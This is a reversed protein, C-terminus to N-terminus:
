TVTSIQLWITIGNATISVLFFYGVWVVGPILTLSALQDADSDEAERQRRLIQLEVIPKLSAVTLFTAIFILLFAQMEPSVLFTFYFGVLLPIVVLFGWFNRVSLFIVALFTALITIGLLVRGSSSLYQIGLGLLAPSTYGAATTFVMGLGRPNGRSITVGSTDSHLKIGSIRRGFLIGVFAHGGEHVVTIANRSVAWIPSFVLLLSGVWAVVLMWM